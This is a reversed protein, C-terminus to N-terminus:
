KGRNTCVRTINFSKNDLHESLIADEAEKKQSLIKNKLQEVTTHNKSSRKKEVIEKSVFNNKLKTM